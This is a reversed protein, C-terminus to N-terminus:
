NVNRPSYVLYKIIQERISYFDPSLHLHYQKQLSFQRNVGDCDAEKYGSCHLTFESM